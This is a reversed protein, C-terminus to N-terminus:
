TRLRGNRECASRIRAALIPASIPKGIFDQAGLEFARLIYNTEQYASLFIVPIGVTGPNEKLRTMVEFGDMDPMALDLLILDVAHGRLYNLADRGNDFLLLDCEYNERTLITKVSRLDSLEHDVMMIRPLSQTGPESQTM